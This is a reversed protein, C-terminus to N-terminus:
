KLKVSKVKKINYFNSIAETPQSRSQFPGIDTRLKVPVFVFINDVLIM